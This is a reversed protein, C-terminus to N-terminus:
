KGFLKKWFRMRSRQTELKIRVDDIFIPLVRNLIIGSPRVGAIHLDRLSEDVLSKNVISSGIVFVCLDAMAALNISYDTEIVGPCDMIVVEYDKKLQDMLDFMKKSKALEKMFPGKQGVKIRDMPQHFILERSDAKGELYSELPKPATNDTFPNHAPDMEVLIIKKGLNHFYLALHYSLCSKGEQNISSTFSVSLCKPMTVTPAIVTGYAKRELREALTRIFFLTKEESNKKSFFSLEPMLMLVPITYKMEVQKQTRIKKDNMELYVAVFMGFFLGFIVGLLPLAKVWWAERLPRSKEAVQYLELSGTPVNLMLQVTKLSKNLFDVQEESIQKARLLKSFAMQEAPLNSMLQETKALSVALDQKVKQASRVKSEMRMLELNLREKSPNKETLQGPGGAESSDKGETKSQGMLDKLQEELIRIKPNGSAYKARADALEEQLALIRSMLPNARGEETTMMGETVEVRDPLNAAERKLNEYEVLLSTYRLDAAQVKSRAETLQAILTVYDATMEFYHHKNKFDEIQQLEVNLRQNVDDLQNKFNNLEDQLQQAFFDQSRKVAIKALANSIDVALNPNDSTTIIRVLHSNNLPKPVDVMEELQKANLSLGLQGIVASLNSPLKVFDLATSLSPNNLTIGGPLTKPLDGQYIVVAEAKYNTLLHYTILAGISGWFLISLALALLHRQIGLFLKRTDYRQAIDDGEIDRFLPQSRSDKEKPSNTSDM